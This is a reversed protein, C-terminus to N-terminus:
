MVLVRRGELAWQLVGELSGGGERQIRRCTVRFLEFGKKSDHQQTVGNTYVRTNRVPRGGVSGRFPFRTFLMRPVWFHVKPAGRSAM